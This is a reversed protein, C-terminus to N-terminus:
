GIDDTRDMDLISRGTRRWSELKESLRSLVGITVAMDEPNMDETLAAEFRHARLHLKLVEADGKPTLHVFSRRRDRSDFRRQVWGEGELEKVQRTVLAPTVSLRLALDNLGVGDRGVPSLEHLLKLRAPAIGVERSFINVLALHAHLLEAIFHKGPHLPSAEWEPIKGHSMEEQKTMSGVYYIHNVIYLVKYYLDFFVEEQSRRSGSPFTPARVM